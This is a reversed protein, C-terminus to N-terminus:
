QTVEYGKILILVGILLFTNGDSTTYAKKLGRCM